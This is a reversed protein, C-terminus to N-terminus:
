QSGKSVFDTTFLIRAFVPFEGMGSWYYHHDYM